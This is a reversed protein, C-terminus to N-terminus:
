ELNHESVHSGITITATATGIVMGFKIVKEGKVINRLALKHGLPIDDALTITLPETGTDGCVTVEEGASLEHLASAVNDRPNLLLTKTKPTTM